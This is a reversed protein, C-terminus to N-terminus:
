VRIELCIQVMAIVRIENKVKLYLEVRMDVVKAM